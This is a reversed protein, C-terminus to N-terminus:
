SLDGTALNLEYRLHAVQAVHHRGHWAYYVLMDALSLPSDWDPHRLVRALERPTLRDLLYTWRASLGELLELAEDVRGNRSDALEAWAAEDYPKVVPADETLALKMRTYGHVYSDLVHHVVQRVTWGHPRYPTDLQAENLGTVVARLTAPTDAIARVARAADDATVVDPRVFPGIPFRPDSTTM